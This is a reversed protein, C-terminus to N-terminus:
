FYCFGYLLNPPSLAHTPRLRTEEKYYPTPTWVQTSSPAAPCLQTEKGHATGTFGPWTALRGFFGRAPWCPGPVPGCPGGPALRRASPRGAGWGHPGAPGARGARGPGATEQSHDRRQM